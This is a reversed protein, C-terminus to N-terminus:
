SESPIRFSLIMLAAGEGCLLLGLIWFLETLGLLPFLFLLIGLLIICLWSIYCLINHGSSHREAACRTLGIIGGSLLLSATIWAFILLGAAPNCLLALGGLVVLIGYLLWGWLKRDPQFAGAIIWGGGFLLGCGFVVSMFLGTLFPHVAILIGTLLMLLGRLFLGRRNIGAVIEPAAFFLKGM